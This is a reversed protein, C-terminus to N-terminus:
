DADIYCTVGDDSDIEIDGGCRPCPEGYSWTLLNTSGCVPCDNLTELEPPFPIDSVVQDFLQECATCYFTQTPGSMLASKGGAITANLNCSSCKYPRLIAM